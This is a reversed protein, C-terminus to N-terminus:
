FLFSLQAARRSFLSIMPQLELRLRVSFRHRTRQQLQFPALRRRTEPYSRRRSRYIWALVECSTAFGFEIRDLPQSVSTTQYNPLRGISLGQRIADTSSLMPRIAKDVMSFWKGGKVGNGLASVM